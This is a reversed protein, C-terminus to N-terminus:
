GLFEKVIKSVLAGDARSKVDPMLVAMVRGTDKAGSAGTKELAKKALERIEKETLQAPLYAALVEIEKKENEALEKRGGREYM